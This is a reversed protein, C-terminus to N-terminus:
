AIHVLLGLCRWLQAKTAHVVAGECDAGFPTCPPWWHLSERGRVVRTFAGCHLSCHLTIFGAARRLTTQTQALTHTALSDCCLTRM